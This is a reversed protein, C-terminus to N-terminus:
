ASVPIWAKVQWSDGENVGAEVTGGLESARVQMNRIGQGASAVPSRAGDNLVEITLAGASREFSVEACTANSHRLVNTLSEQLIRYAAHLQPRAVDKVDAAIRVSVDIGATRLPEALAEFDVEPSTRRQELTRLTARLQDLADTSVLAVDRLAALLEPDTPLKAVHAAVSARTSIAVLSHGLSDHLERSLENRLQIFMDKAAADREAAHQLERSHQAARRSRLADGCAVAALLLLVYIAFNAVGADIHALWYAVGVVPLVAAAVLLSHRRGAYACTGAVLMEILLAVHDCGALPMAALVLVTTIGMIALPHARRFLVAVGIALAFFPLWPTFHGLYIPSELCLGLVAAGALIWDVLRPRRIVSLIVLDAYTAVSHIARLMRITRAFSSEVQESTPFSSGVTNARGFVGGQGSGLTTTM